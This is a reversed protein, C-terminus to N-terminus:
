RGRGGGYRGGGGGRQGGGSGCDQGYRYQNGGGSDSDQGYRYKNGGGQGGGGGKGKQKGGGSGDRKRSGGRQGNNEMNRKGSAGMESFRTDRESQDMSGMRSQRETRYANRDTESMTRVQDKMGFLEDNSTSSYDVAYAAGSLSVSTLMIMKVISKKMMIEKKLYSDDIMDIYPKLLIEKNLRNTEFQKM